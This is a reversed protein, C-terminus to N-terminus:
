SNDGLENASSDGSNELNNAEDSLSILFKDRESIGRELRNVLWYRRVVISAKVEQLKFWSPHEGAEDIEQLPNWRQSPLRSSDNVDTVGYTITTASERAFFVYYKM